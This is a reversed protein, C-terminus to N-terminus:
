YLIFKSYYLDIIPYGKKTIWMDWDIQGLFGHHRFKFKQRIHDIYHSAFDVYNIPSNKFSDILIKINEKLVHRGVGQDLFSFFSYGKEHAIKTIYENPHMSKINPYMSTKHDDEGIQEILEYLEIEGSNKHVESNEKDEVEHIIKREIYTALGKTLAVHRWCSHTILNGVWSQIVEHLINYFIHDRDDLVNHSLYILNANGVGHYPFAKPMIIIQLKGWVFNTLYDEAHSIYKDVDKLHSIAKPLKEKETFITVRQSIENSEMKGAVFGILFTPIPIVQSFYFKTKPTTNSNVTLKKSKSLLGSFVVNYNNPVTIRASFTSKITPSDM